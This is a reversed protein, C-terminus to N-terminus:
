TSALLPSSFPRAWSSCFATAAKLTYGIPDIRERTQFIIPYHRRCSFEHRRKM